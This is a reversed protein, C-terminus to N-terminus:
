IVPTERYRGFVDAITAMIEGLTAYSRVAEILAPMLNHESDEAGTRVAELAQDV